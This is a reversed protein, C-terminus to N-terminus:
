CKSCRQDPDMAEKMLWDWRAARGITGTSALTLGSTTVVPGVIEDQM